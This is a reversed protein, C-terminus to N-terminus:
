AGGGRSSPRLEAAAYFPQLVALLAPAPSPWLDGEVVVTTVPGSPSWEDRERREIRVRCCHLALSALMAANVDVLRRLENCAGYRDICYPIAQMGVSAVPMDMVRLAALLVTYAPVARVLSVPQLLVRVLGDPTSEVNELYISETLSYLRAVEEVLVAADRPNLRSGRFGLILRLEVDVAKEEEPIDELAEFGLGNLVTKLTDTVIAPYYTFLWSPLCKEVEVGGMYVDMCHQERAAEERSPRACCCLKLRSEEGHVVIGDALLTKLRPLFSRLYDFAYVRRVTM